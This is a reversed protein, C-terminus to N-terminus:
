GWGELGWGQLMGCAFVSTASCNKSHQVASTASCCQSKQPASTMKVLLQAATLPFSCQLMSFAANCSLPAKRGSEQPNWAGVNLRGRKPGASVSTIGHWRQFDLLGKAELCFFLLFLFVTVCSTCALYSVASGGNMEMMRDEPRGTMDTGSIVESIEKDSPLRKCCITNLVM